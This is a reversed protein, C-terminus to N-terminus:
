ETKKSEILCNALFISGECSILHGTTETRYSRPPKLCRCECFFVGNPSTQSVEGDRKKTRAHRQAIICTHTAKYVLSNINDSVFGKKHISEFFCPLFNIERNFPM